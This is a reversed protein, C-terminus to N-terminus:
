LTVTMKNLVHQKNGRNVSCGVNSLFRSSVTKLTSFIEDFIQNGGVLSCQLLGRFRPIIKISCICRFHFEATAFYKKEFYKDSVYLTLSKTITHYIQSAGM